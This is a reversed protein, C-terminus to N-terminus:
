QIGGTKTKRDKGQRLTYHLTGTYEWILCSKGLVGNGGVASVKFTYLNSPILNPISVNEYLATVNSAPNGLVQVSYFSKNGTPPLWSLSISDITVVAVNLYNTVNPETYELIQSSKGLVGNGGVASVKFTYLNGPILNPISVNEYLATVNSAPNGLVQVSYFSKNGTPPLWSLSISDITVVAVNLYNTVNPETYTSISAKETQFTGDALVASVYFTYFNGPVLGLISVTNNIVNVNKSPDDPVEVWYSSTNGTPQPWSLSVSNISVETVTLNSILVPVRFAVSSANGQFSDNGSVAYVTFTYLNGPVLSHFTVSENQVRISTSPYGLVHVMYASKNGHPPLWSLSVSGITDQSVSLYRIADPVTYTSVSVSDGRLSGDGSVASVFFTYFNGPTLNSITASETNVEVTTAPDGFVDVVYSSTNGTPPRWSLSVASISVATVSLDSTVNPQTYAWITSGKEQLSGNEDTASVFVTYLNGPILNYITVSEDNVIEQSAPVGSVDVFYPRKSGIPPLWSLSLSDISVLVVRLMNIDKPGLFVIRSDEGKIENEAVASVLFTYTNGPILMPITLSENGTTWNSAPIGLVQILYHSKNGTPPLWSLSVTDITFNSITLNIIVNPVTYESITLNEGRWNNDTVLVSVVFTYLNGPTLANILVSESQVEITKSPEGIVEILYSSM